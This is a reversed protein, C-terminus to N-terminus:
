GHNVASEGNLLRTRFMRARVAANLQSAPIPERFGDIILNLAEIVEAVPILRGNAADLIRQSEAIQAHTALRRGQEVEWAAVEQPHCTQSAPVFCCHGRHTPTIAAWSKHCQCPEDDTRAATM